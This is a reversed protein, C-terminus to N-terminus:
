QSRPSAESRRQRSILQLNRVYVVLGLGQGVVFVPDERWLAYVFLTIGGALSFYWFTQPM